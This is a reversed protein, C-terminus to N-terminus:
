LEVMWSKSPDGLSSYRESSFCRRREDRRYAGLVTFGLIRAYSKKKTLILNVHMSVM